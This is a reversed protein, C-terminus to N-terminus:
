ELALTPAELAPLPAPNEDAFRVVIDSIGDRGWLEDQLLWDRVFHAFARRAEERALPKYRLASENLRSTVSWLADQELQRATSSYSNFPDFFRNLPSSRSEIKMGTTDFAVPLQPILPPIVVTCRRYSGETTVTARVGESLRVFFRFTAPVQIRAHGLGGPVDRGLPRATETHTITEVSQVSALVLEDGRTARIELVQHEITQAVQPGFDFLGLLKLVGEVVSRGPSSLLFGASLAVVLVAVFLRAFLRKSFKAM